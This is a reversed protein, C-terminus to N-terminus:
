NACVMKNETRYGPPQLCYGNYATNTHHYWHYCTSSIKYHGKFSGPMFNCSTIRQGKEQYANDKIEGTRQLACCFCKARGVQHPMKSIKCYGMGMKGHIANNAKEQPSTHICHYWPKGAFFGRLYCHTGM